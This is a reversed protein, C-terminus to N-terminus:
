FQNAHREFAPHFVVTAPECSREQTGATERHAGRVVLGLYARAHAHPRLRAHAAYVSESLEFSGVRWSGVSTGFFRGPPLNDRMAQVLINRVILRKYSSKRLILCM